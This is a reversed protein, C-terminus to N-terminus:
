YIAFGHEGEPEQWEVDLQDVYAAPPGERCWRLLLEVHERPGEFVAEIDGDPRNRVWGAVGLSAAQSRAWYRFGVGQVRGSAIARARCVSGM